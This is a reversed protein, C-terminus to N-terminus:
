ARLSALRSVLVPDYNTLSNLQYPDQDLKYYEKEGTTHEVYIERGTHVAEFSRDPSEILIADRWTSAQGGMLLPVLSVGDIPVPPPVQALEYITAAIDINAALEGRSHQLVGPGRIWLPLQISGQYIRRKGQEIRHDGYMFGNDSTVIVYTEAMLGSSQLYNVILEIGEDLSALAGMRARYLRTIRDHKAQTIRPLKRVWEPKDSVDVEDYNPYKPLEANAYRTAHRQAPVPDGIWPFTAYAEQHNALPNVFLAFPESRSAREALYELAKAFLVDTQYFPAPYTEITGNNNISFGPKTATQIYKYAGYGPMGNWWSYGPPISTPPSGGSGYGNLYKGIYGTHYGANKLQVAQTVLHDLSFYGEQPQDNDYVNSHKSYMGTLMAARAPSCTPNTCYYNTFSAGMNAVLSRAKPLEVTDRYAMDDACIVVFNPRMVAKSGEARARGDREPRIAYSGLVGSAAGAAVTGLASRRGMREHVMYM